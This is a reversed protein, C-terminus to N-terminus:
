KGFIPTTGWPMFRTKFRRGQDHWGKSSEGRGTWRESSEFWSYISNFGPKSCSTMLFDRTTSCVIVAAVPSQAGLWYRKIKRDWSNEWFLIFGPPTIYSQYFRKKNLIVILSSIVNYYAFYCLWNKFLDLLWVCVCVNLLRDKQRQLICISLM